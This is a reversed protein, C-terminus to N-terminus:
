LVGALEDAVLEPVARRAETVVRAWARTGRSGPHRVPGRVPHRMGAGYLVGPGRRRAGIVHAVAGSDLITWPGAPVGRIEAVTAQGRPRIKAVARLRPGRRGMGSLRGDGTARRAEDAAIEVVAAAAKAVAAAPVEAIRDALRHLGHM